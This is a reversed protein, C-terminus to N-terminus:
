MDRSATWQEYGLSKCPLPLCSTGWKKVSHHKCAKPRWKIHWWRKSFNWTQFCFILSTMTLVTICRPWFHNICYLVNLVCDSYLVCESSPTAAAIHMVERMIQSPEKKAASIKEERGDVILSFMGTNMQYKLKVVDQHLTNKYIM